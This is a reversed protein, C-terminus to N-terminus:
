DDTAITCKDTSNYVWGSATFDYSVTEILGAATYTMCIGEGVGEGKYSVTYLHKQKGTIKVIKDGCELKDLVDAPIATIDTVEPVTDKQEKWSGNNLVLLAFKDGVPKIWLSNKDRPAEMSLIPILKQM